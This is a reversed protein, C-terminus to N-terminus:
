FKGLIWWIPLFQAPSGHGFRKRTAVDQFEYFCEESAMSLIWTYIDRYQTTDTFYPQGSYLDYFKMALAVGAASRMHAEDLCIGRLGDRHGYAGKICKIRFLGNVLHEEIRKKIIQKSYDTNVYQVLVAAHLGYILPMTQSDFGEFTMKVFDLISPLVSYKVKGEFHSWSSIGILSFLHYARPNSRLKTLDDNPEGRFSGYNKDFRNELYSYAKMGMQVFEDSQTSQTYDAIVKLVAVTPFIDEVKAVAERTSDDIKFRIGNGWSYLPWGGSPKQLKQMELLILRVTKIYKQDGTVKFLENLAYATESFYLIGEPGWSEHVKYRGSKSFEKCLKDGAILAYRLLDKDVQSIM